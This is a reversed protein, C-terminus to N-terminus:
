FAPLLHMLLGSTLRRAVLGSAEPDNPKPFEPNKYPRIIMELRGDDPLVLGPFLPGGTRRERYKGFLSRLREPMKATPEFYAVAGLRGAKKMEFRDEGYFVGKAESGEIWVHAAVTSKSELHLWYDKLEHGGLEAIFNPSPNRYGADLKRINLYVMTQEQEIHPYITMDLYTDIDLQKLIQMSSTLGSKKDAVIRVRTTNRGAGEVVHRVGHDLSLIPELEEFRSMISLLHSSLVTDSMGYNAIYDPLRVPGAHSRLVDALSIPKEGAKDAAIATAPTAMETTVACLALMAGTLTDRIRKNM